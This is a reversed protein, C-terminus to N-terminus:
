SDGYNRSGDRNVFELDPFSSLWKKVDEYKRSDLIDVVKGNEVNIM